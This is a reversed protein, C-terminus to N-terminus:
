LVGWLDMKRMYGTGYETKIKCISEIPNCKKMLVLKGKPVIQLVRGRKTRLFSKAIVYVYQVNTTLLTKSMWGRNGDFDEVKIWGEFEDLAKVPMNKRKYVWKIPYNTNYGTRVNAEDYKIGMFKPYHIIGHKEGNRMFIILVISILFVLFLTLMFNIYKM